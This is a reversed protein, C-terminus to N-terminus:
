CFFYTLLTIQYKLNQTSALCQPSKICNSLIHLNNIVYSSFIEIWENMRFTTTKSRFIECYNEKWGTPPFVENM